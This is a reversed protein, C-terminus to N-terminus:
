RPIRPTQGSGCWESMETTPWIGRHYGPLADTKPVDWEEPRPPNLRCEGIIPNNKDGGQFGTPEWYRCYGCCTKM